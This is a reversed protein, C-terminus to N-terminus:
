VFCQPVDKSSAELADRIRPMCTALTRALWLQDQRIQPTRMSNAECRLKIRTQLARGSM